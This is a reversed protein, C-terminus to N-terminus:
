INVVQLTKVLLNLVKLKKILYNIQFFLNKAKKCHIPLQKSEPWRMRLSAERAGGHM